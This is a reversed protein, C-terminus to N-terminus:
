AMGACADIVLKGDLYAAVQLGIQTKSSRLSFPAYGTTPM